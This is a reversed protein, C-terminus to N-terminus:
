PLGVAVWYYGSTAGTSQANFGVTTVGTLSMSTSPNAGFNQPTLQVSQVGHTFPVNFTVTTAVGAYSITGWEQMVNGATVTCGNGLFTGCSNVPPVYMQGISRMINVTAVGSTAASTIQGVLVGPVPLVTSGSDHCQGATIISMVAFDGLATTNDFLCAGYGNLDLSAMQATGSVAFTIGNWFTANTPCTHVTSDPQLCALLNAVLGAGTATNYPMNM